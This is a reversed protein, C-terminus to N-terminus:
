IGGLGALISLLETTVPPFGVEPFWHNLLPWLLFHWLVAFGLVAGVSWSFRTPRRTVNETGDDAVASGTKVFLRGVGRVVGGIVNGSLGM